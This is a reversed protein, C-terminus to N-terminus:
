TVDWSLGHPKTPRFAFALDVTFAVSYQIMDNHSVLPLM